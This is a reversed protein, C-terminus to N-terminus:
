SDIAATSTSTLKTSVMAAKPKRCVIYHVYSCNKHV